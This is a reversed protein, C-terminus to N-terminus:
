FNFGLNFRTIQFLDFRFNSYQVKYDQSLPDIYERTRKGEEFFLASSNEVGVFIRKSLHIKLGIIPSIGVQAVDFYDNYQTTEYQFNYTSGFADAGWYFNINSAISVNKQIGIAFTMEYNDGFVSRVRLSSSKFNRRYMFRPRLSAKLLNFHNASGSEIM